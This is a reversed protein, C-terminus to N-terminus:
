RPKRMRLVEDLILLAAGCVIASDAVNFAPWHLGGLHFDLFDIVHGHAIRDIVNGLAGGLILALAVSFIKQKAHRTLLWVIFASAAIGIVLFVTGQWGSAASLFSFAAGKNYTLVLNFFSTIPTSDGFDFAREIAIKTAQDLAIVVAAVVLWPAVDRPRARVEAQSAM